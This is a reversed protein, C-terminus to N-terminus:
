GKFSSFGTRFVYALVHQEDSNNIANVVTTGEFLIKNSHKKYSFFENEQQM